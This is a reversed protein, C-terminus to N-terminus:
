NKNKNKLARHRYIVNDPVQPTEIEIRPAENQMAEFVRDQIIMKTDKSVCNEIAKQVIETVKNAIKLHEFHIDNETEKPTRIRIKNVDFFLQGLLVSCGLVGTVIFVTISGCILTAMWPKFAEFSLLLSSM